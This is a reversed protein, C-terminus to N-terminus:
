TKRADNNCKKQMMINKKCYLTKTKLFFFHYIYIYIYPTEGSTEMKPPGTEYRGPKLFKSVNGRKTCSLDIRLGKSERPPGCEEIMKVGLRVKRAAGRGGFNGWVVMKTLSPSTLV